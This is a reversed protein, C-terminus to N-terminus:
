WAHAWGLATLVGSTALQQKISATASTCSCERHIHVRGPFSIFDGAYLVSSFSLQSTSILVSQVVKCAKLPRALVQSLYLVDSLAELVVRDCADALM